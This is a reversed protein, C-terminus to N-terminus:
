AAGTVLKRLREANRPAFVEWDNNFYAFVEASGRLDRILQEDLAKASELADPDRSPM